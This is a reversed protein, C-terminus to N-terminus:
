ADIPLDRADSFVRYGHHEELWRRNRTHLQQSPDYRNLLVVVDLPRLAQACLRTANITGLGADAVLITLNPQLSRVLAASDADHAIPSYIGGATELFGLEVGDPWTLERRLDAVAIPERQLADAAMPPAMALPYWRHEPCVAYPNEGTALGLLDADTPELPKGTRSAAFSQVPKRVAVRVGRRRATAALLCTTWTKGVETATGVVAVLREPRRSTSASSM